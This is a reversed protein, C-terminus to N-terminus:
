LRSSGQICASILSCLSCRVTYNNISKNMNVTAFRTQSLVQKIRQLAFDRDYPNGFIWPSYNVTVIFNESSSTNLRQKNGTLSHLQIQCLINYLVHFTTKSHRIIDPM